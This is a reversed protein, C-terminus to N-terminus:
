GIPQCKAMLWNRMKEPLELALSDYVWQNYNNIWDIESRTLLKLDLCHTDLYCLTLTELCIYDGFEGPQCPTSWPAQASVDYPRVLVCNEHRIGYRGELYIAPENSMVMGPLLPQPNHQMRVSQPGEHVSLYHGVGHSTGHLYTKGDRWLDMRALADLQDGRTGAPCVAEALRIHGKLVQTYDHRMADSIQGIGITRTIDTTGDLYQGGTDILLLGDGQISVDTAACNEYHPMAGHANWAVIAPFSEERYLPKQSRLDILRQVCEMETVPTSPLAPASADPEILGLRQELWYYFETMVIGDRHMAARIGQIETENKIAKFVPIPNQREMEDCLMSTPAGDYPAVTVGIGSLYEEVAPSLKAGDVYLTCGDHSLLLYSVFVPTCPIDSGRLNLVWAIEDLRYLLLTECQSLVRAIKSQATEGAYQEPYLEIPALPLSPRDKWLRDILDIDTATAQALARPLLSKVGATHLPAAGTQASTQQLSDLWTAPDPDICLKMLRVSTGQLQDAGSIFFRSDTWLWADSATVIVTAVEGRFGTLWEVCKWHEPMYENQHPDTNDIIYADIGESQMQQRLLEIRNRYDIM